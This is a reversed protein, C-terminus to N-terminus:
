LVQRRRGRLLLAVAMLGSLNVLIIAFDLVNNKSLSWKGLLLALDQVPKAFVRPVEAVLGSTTSLNVKDSPGSPDIGAAVAGRQESSSGGASSSGSGSSTNGNESSTGEAVDVLKITNAGLVQTGNLIASYDTVSQAGLLLTLTGGPTMGNIRVRWTTESEQEFSYVNGGGQLVLDSEDFSPAWIPKSFDVLFCADDVATEEDLGPCRNIEVMLDNGDYVLHMINNSGLAFGDRGSQFEYVFKYSDPESMNGALVVGYVETEGTAFGGSAELNLVLPYSSGAPITPTSSTLMCQIIEGVYGDYAPGMNQILGMSSCGIPTLGDSDNADEVSLYSTGEPIVYYLGVGADFIEGVGINMINVEYSVEDGAQIEGSTLLRTQIALDGVEGIPGSVTMSQNNQNSDPNPAGGELDSSVISVTWVVTENSEGTVPGSAYFVICQGAEILGTWVGDLTISGLDTASNGSDKQQQIMYETLTWNTEQSDFVIEEVAGYGSACVHLWTNSFLGDKPFKVNNNGVYVNLDVDYVPEAILQNMTAVDGNPNTDVNPISGNLVASDVTASWFATEGLDGSVQGYARLNLCVGTPLEGTWLGNADISGPDTVGVNSWQSPPAVEFSTNVWNQTTIDLQMSTVVGVGNSCINIWIHGDIQPDYTDWVSARTNGGVGIYPTLDVAYVPDVIPLIIQSSNDGPNPDVNETDDYLTSSTISFSHVADDGSLGTVHGWQHLTICQDPDMQGTWTSGSISGRDTANTWQDPQAVTLTELNWNTEVSDFVFSKLSANGNNCIQVWSYDFLGEQSVDTRSSGVYVFMDAYEGDAASASSAVTIQSVFLSVFSVLGVAIFVRLLKM